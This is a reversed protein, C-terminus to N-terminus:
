DKKKEHGSGILYGIVFVCLYLGLNVYFEAEM